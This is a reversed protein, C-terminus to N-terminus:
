KEFVFRNDKCLEIFEEINTDDIDKVQNIFDDLEVTQDCINRLETPFIKIYEKKREDGHKKFKIHAKECVKELNPTDYIPEIYPYACHDKFLEKSIYKNKMSESCDDTDMIIFIKFNEDLEAKKRGKSEVLRVDTFTNIFGKFDKFRMDNNLLNLLGNIQISAEGKDRSIIEMKLRFNTKIYNCIQLESKGHVIVICKLYNLGQQKKM